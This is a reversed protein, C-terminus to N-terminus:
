KLRNDTMPKKSKDYLGFLMYGVGIALVLLGIGVLPTQQVGFYGFLAIGIGVGSAIVGTRVDNKENNAKYGPISELLDPTITNGSQILAQMTDHFKSVKLQNYHSVVWVIFVPMGFVFVIGFLPVLQDWDM